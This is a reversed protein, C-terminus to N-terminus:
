LMDKSNKNREELLSPIRYFLAGDPYSSDKIVDLLTLAEDYMGAGMFDIAYEIYTHVKSQFLIKIEM